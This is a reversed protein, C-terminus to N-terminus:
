KLRRQSIFIRQATQFLRYFGRHISTLSVMGEQKLSELDSAVWFATVLPFQDFINGTHPTIFRRRASPHQSRAPFGDVSDAAFAMTATVGLGTLAFPARFSWVTYM